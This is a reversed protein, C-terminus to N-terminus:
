YIAKKLDQSIEMWSYKGRSYDNSINTVLSNLLGNDDLLRNIGDALDDVSKKDVILGYRGNDVMEPLGGVNTVIAPKDFAFASMVVGSQTADTYPCVIFMSNRILDILEEQSVFYHRFEIYNLKQYESTDFHFDGKGAVVLKVNPHKDHVRKMAPLLYDLGKYKSIKGSFLIFSESPSPHPSKANVDEVHLFTYASLQSDIVRKGDLKYFDLFQQRQAKNLIVFQPILSFALKRRFRVIKTDLGTHPFPDHVTLVMKSRLFYLSLEYINPSWALHIKSFGQRILFILLLFNTWFAKLLWLRGSTNVVYFKDMDVFDAYKLFEPYIDVAKFIGSHPYIKDICFAPGKTFRPNVEMIYTIDSLKQAANLYSLDTDSLQIKGLYAIKKESRM